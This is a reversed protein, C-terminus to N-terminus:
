WAGDEYMVSQRCIGTTKRLKLVVRVALQGLTQQWADRVAHLSSLARIFLVTPQKAVVAERERAWERVALDATTNHSCIHTRGTWGWLVVLPVNIKRYYCWETYQLSYILTMDAINHGASIARDVHLVASAASPHLFTIWLCLTCQCLSLDTSSFISESNNSETSLPGPLCVGWPIKLVDRSWHTVNFYTRLQEIIYKYNLCLSTQHLASRLDCVNVLPRLHGNHNRHHHHHSPPSEACKTSDSSHTDSESQQM